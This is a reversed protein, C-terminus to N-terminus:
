IFPALRIFAVPALRPLHRLAMGHLNGALAMAGSLVLFWNMGILWPVGLVRPGFVTGYEYHGFLMGTRVGIVEVTMGTVYVLLPFLPLGQQKGRGSWWNLFSMLLINFPTLAAFFSRDVLVMGLLGTLHFLIAIATARKVRGSPDGLWEPTWRTLSAQMRHSLMMDPPFNMCFACHRSGAQPDPM